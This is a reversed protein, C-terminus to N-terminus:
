GKEQRPPLNRDRMRQLRVPDGFNMYERTLYLVDLFLLAAILGAPILSLRFVLKVNNTAAVGVTTLLWRKFSSAFAKPGQANEATNDTREPPLCQDVARRRIMASM